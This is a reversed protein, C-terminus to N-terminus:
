TQMGGRRRTMRRIREYHNNAAEVEAKRTRRMEERERVYRQYKECTDHKKGCGKEPCDKCPAIM